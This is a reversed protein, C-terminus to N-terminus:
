RRREEFNAAGTQGYQRLLVEDGVVEALNVEDVALGDLMRRISPDLDPPPSTALDRWAQMVGANVDAFTPADPWPSPDLAASLGAIAWSVRDLEDRRWPIAPPRGEIHIAM